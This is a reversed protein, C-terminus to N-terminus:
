ATEKIADTLGVMECERPFRKWMEQILKDRAEAIGPVEAIESLHFVEEMFRRFDWRDM